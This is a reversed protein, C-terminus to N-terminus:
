SVEHGFKPFQEFRAVLQDRLAFPCDGAFLEIGVPPAQSLYAGDKAISPLPAM